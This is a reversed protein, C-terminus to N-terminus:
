AFHLCVCRWENLSTVTASIDGPAFLTQVAALETAEFGTLVLWADKDLLQILDDAISLLVTASINAVVVDAFSAALCDASGAAVTAPLQNLAFNELASQLAAEDTDVAVALAAGIQLAAIALMGSGTGIDAVKSGPQVCGELAEIALQTCPHEGTGSAQGPNHILRFRGPPTPESCWPPALFFRQGVLRGPWARHTEEVWDVPDLLRWEPSFAAFHQLLPARPATTDFAAVLTVQGHADLEQIGLADFEWLTESIFDAKDKPCTLRLSYM